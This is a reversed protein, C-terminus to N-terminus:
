KANKEGTKNIDEAYVCFSSLAINEVTLPKNCFLRMLGSKPLCDISWSNPFIPKGINKIDKGTGGFGNIHLVDSCGSLRCIPKRHIDVAVFDMRRYGSDHLSRGDCPLIVLSYFKGIDTNFKRIKLERFEKLTMENVNKM